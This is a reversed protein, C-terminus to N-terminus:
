GSCCEQEGWGGESREKGTLAHAHANAVRHVAAWLAGHPNELCSYQLPNGHRGTLVVVYTRNTAPSGRRSTPELCALNADSKNM